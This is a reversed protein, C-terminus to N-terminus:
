YVYETKRGYEDVTKLQGKPKTAKLTMDVLHNEKISFIRWRDVALEGVEPSDNSFVVVVNPTRIRLEKSDYKSALLKGDKIKELVEYNVGEFTKAKGVNFLFIDTTTLPRKGLAHCISSNKTKIDMGNVVRNWGFKYEVYEQFWSKGECGNVGKVWIVERYTAKEIHKMLDEQWPRLIMNEQDIYQKQKIFLDLAEKYVPRLSDQKINDEGLIQYIKSGLNFKEEHGVGDKILNKRLVEKNDGANDNSTENGNGNQNKKNDGATNKNKCHILKKHRKLNYKRPFIKSCIDCVFKKNHITQIQKFEEKGNYKRHIEEHRKLNDSRM